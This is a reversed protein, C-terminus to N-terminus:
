RVYKKLSDKIYYKKGNKELRHIIEDTFAQWDVDTHQYNIKGVKYLDVFDMTDDLLRFTEETEIVPEFSVWTEIGKEKAKRLSKIRDDPLAAGPEWLLSQAPDKFTLTAAYADGKKYLHFDKAAKMGGKTLVQFPINYAKFMALAEGTVKHFEYDGQYPDTTFCLLVRRTDRNMAMEILDKQVKNLIDKRAASHSSFDERSKRLCSPAYCYSCGHSCGSYLNLALESYERAQGAPEYIVNM